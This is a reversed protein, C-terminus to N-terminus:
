NKERKKEMLQILQELESLEHRKSNLIDKTFLKELLVESLPTNDSMYLRNFNSKCVESKEKIFKGSKLIRLFIGELCPKQWILKINKIQALKEAKQLEEKSKGNSDLVVYKEDYDRAQANKEVESIFTSYDGGTGIKVAVHKTGRQLYLRKLHQIFLGDTKGECYIFLTHRRQQTKKM